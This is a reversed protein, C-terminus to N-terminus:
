QKLNGWCLPACLPQTALNGCVIKTDRYTLAATNTYHAAASNTLKVLHGSSTAYLTESAAQIHSDPQRYTHAKSDLIASVLPMTPAVRLKHSWVQKCKPRRPNAAPFIHIARARSTLNALHTLASFSCNRPCLTSHSALNPAYM